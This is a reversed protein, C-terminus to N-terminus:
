NCLSSGLVSVARQTYKDKTTYKQWCSRSGSSRGKGKKAVACGSGLNEPTYMLTFIHTLIHTHPHTHTHM